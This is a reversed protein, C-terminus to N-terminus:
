EELTNRYQRLNEELRDIRSLQDHSDGRHLAEKEMEYLEQSEEILPSLDFGGLFVLVDFTQGRGPARSLTEMGVTGRLGNEAKWKAFAEGVRGTTVDGSDIRREPARVVVYAAEATSPDLPVFTNEAARQIAMKLNLGIPKELATGFTGHYVGRRQPKRVYDKVDITDEALRGASIFLDIAAIIQENVLEKDDAFGGHGDDRVDDHQLALEKLRSNSALITMDANQEGREDMLLRSLGCIANFHRQASEYEFPWAALAFQTLGDLWAANMDATKGETPGQSLQNIVYPVSGNGSGGGLAVTYMLAEAGSLTTNIPQFIEEFDEEAMREGDFFDNGVGVNAGFNAIHAQYIAERDIALESEVRTINQQIDTDNTNVLVIREDIGPNETRTLFQSAINGGGQGAAVIGWTTFDRRQGEGAAM